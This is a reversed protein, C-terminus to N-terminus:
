FGVALNYLYHILASLMLGVVTGTKGRKVLLYLLFITGMHLVGTLMLRKPFLSLDGLTLINVLYFVSESFAFIFGGLVALIKFNRKREKEAKTMLLVIILKAIEELFYLHPSLRELPLLLLPSSFALLLSLFLSNM